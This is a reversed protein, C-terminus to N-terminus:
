QNAVKPLEIERNIYDSKKTNGFDQLINKRMQEAMPGITMTIKM